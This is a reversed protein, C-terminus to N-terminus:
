DQTKKRKELVIKVLAQRTSQPLQSYSTMATGPYGNTIVDFAREPTLSYQTFNPPPPKLESGVKSVEGNIGHCEACTNKWVDLGQKYQQPSIEYKVVTVTSFINYQGNLYELIGDRQYNDYYDFGPMATDDIGNRLIDMLYSQDARIASIDEPPIKLQSADSGNGSANGGHCFACSQAYITAGKDYIINMQSKYHNIADNHFVLVKQKYQETNKSVEPMIGAFARDQFRQRTLLMSVLLFMLLPVVVSFNLVTNPQLTLAGFWVMILALIIGASM